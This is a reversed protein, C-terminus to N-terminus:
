LKGTVVYKLIKVIQEVSECVSFASADLEKLAHIYEKPHQVIVPINLATAYGAEFAANWQQYKDGFRVIVIDADELLNRTRIANLKAGKHDYWFKDSEEGLITVGCKDSNAHNTIPSYFEIPLKLRKCASEIKKRWDSHIEGSLYVKWIRPM